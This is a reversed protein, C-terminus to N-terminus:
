EVKQGPAPIPDCKGSFIFLLLAILTLVAEFIVGAHYMGTHRLSFSMFLTGLSAMLRTIPSAYRYIADFHEPGCRTVIHSPLLNNVAGVVAGQCLFGVGAAMGTGFWMLLYGVVAVIYLVITAIYSNAKQDIIGSLNSGIFGVVGGAGLLTLALATSLGREALIGAGNTQSGLNGITVLGACLIILVLAPSTLIKALTWPSTTKNEASAAMLAQEEETIPMNDPLLGVNAPSDTVWFISIIAFLVLLGGILCQSMMIGYSSALWQGLPLIVIGSGISGSTIFGMMVGKKRPFWRAILSLLSMMSYGLVLLQNIFIHACAWLETTAVGILGFNIGSLLACTVFVRKPGKVEIMKGLYIGLLAGCIGGISHALLLNSPQFGKAALAPVFVNPSMVDFYTTLFFGLFCFAVISYGYAFSKKQKM